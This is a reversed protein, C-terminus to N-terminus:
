GSEHQDGRDFLRETHTAKSMRFIVWARLWVSVRVQPPPHSIPHRFRWHGWARPTALTIALPVIVGVMSLAGFKTAMAMGRLAIALYLSKKEGTEVFTSLAIVAIAVIAVPM